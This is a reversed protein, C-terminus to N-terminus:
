ADARLVRLLRELEREFRLNDRDWGTFDAALRQKVQAARANKWEFLYADITIPILSPVRERGEKIPSSGQDMARNIEDDVWRTTLSNRSCCLLVKDRARTNPGHDGDVLAFEKEDLWCRLGRAQLSDHLRSAFSLDLRSYSIFCSGLEPSKGVLSRAYGILDDPAGCGRLFVEPIRGGSRFLTDIGITSPGFHNISDLGKAAGLDTNAFITDGLTAGGLDAAVLGTNNLNAGILNAGNLNAGAFDAGGLDARSLDARSLDASSLSAGRLDAHSLDAERINADNLLAGSLDAVSLDAGELSASSLDARNLDAGNLDGDSLDARILAAESLDADKLDAGSLNAERLNADALDAGGLAAERLDAGSLDPTFSVASELQEDLWENWADAGQKLVSVHEWNAMSM